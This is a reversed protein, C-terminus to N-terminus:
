TIRFTVTSSSAPLYNADGSYDARLRYTAPTHPTIRITARGNVLAARASVGRGINQLTITGTPVAGGNNSVTATITVTTGRRVTTASYRATVTPKTKLAVVQAKSGLANHFHVILAGMGHDAGYAAVDRRLNLVSGPSDRFLLPSADGDYSGYVAVGPHLVDMSLPKVFNGNTGIDGVQDVPASQYPSFSFVAYKIRSTASTLGPLAALAVPMVMTDSNMLATDTDGFRADITEIDIVDGTGLDVLESVMTDSGTLRTNFLVSDPSNDGNSDIYIDFEQSSAPTRWAGQTTVSFYAMGDQLPSQGISNRQPTDTTAGVYKLDAAREDPFHVCQSTVVNSCTPALGSKAQLEFGAVTSQVATNGSGQNVRTGTLPLFSSQVAGAPMTMSSPQTMASAPRPAAYAPVRLDPVGAGQFLVIGSADAQYERPLGGQTRDVTPDITKTLQSPNITLTLTVTTSSRPDVTVSTPSVSYTAGPISTRNVFSVAYSAAATDTNQVKITKTLVTPTASPTIALPGFSASVTGNDTRDSANDITYALANNDLATKVDIRGSGVRNPAFENGTHNTGSFLDADATNMLDAKVQETNWDPHMSHVLAATGAVMPTAMSTGSDNLGKNGTGNGASFVSVGVATVDPKVNGADGIGRSSFGAVTDNLSTDFQSFGNATTGSITVTNDALLQGRIADGGSKAVLVGPISTSGTIGAGFNEQDDAFIFGTAGAAALKGSRGVSGCRRSAGDDTWEVFAVHGSIQSAYPETITDCGDLNGPQALRVVDGSLDPKNVWDYAISREAAYDGAIGAPASVHLADVQSYADASAAVAISRPANGPSGGIDYLDGGNGSAVAMTIGMAAADNTVVSDGDQPSGFDSGLSMNIVNVHDSTDGDGNPDAAKDIAAGVLDTSGACGFVRYAYLKAKPAMGPGIRMTGFPTSSNYAGAYTTGDANEGYGAVTGAVHTGHSNCDLPYPDPSPTPNYAPDTPDANYADGALDYGGIVKTGPFEGPTVPQGLQAKAANYDAVTGAGGFDAHTYDVGTDIIAVTSNAGLDGYATWAQPAGQLPVAYSNSASKPAIPYVAAVGALRTLAPYNKVDTTVALGALVAHTRYLLKSKSPLAAIVQNQGATVETLQASAAARAASTGRSRAGNYASQTTNAALKLLFAYNGSAPVGAPAGGAGKRMARPTASARSAAAKLSHKPASVGPAVNPSAPAAGAGTTSALAAVVAGAVTAAIILAPRSGRARTRYM